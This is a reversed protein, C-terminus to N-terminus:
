DDPQARRAARARWDMLEALGMSDMVPPSWHFVVALDAM